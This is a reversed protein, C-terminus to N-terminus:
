AMEVSINLTVPDILTYTQVNDRDYVITKYNMLTVYLNSPEHDVTMGTRHITNIICYKADDANGTLFDLTFSKNFLASHILESRDIITLTDEHEHEYLSEEIIHLTFNIDFKQINHTMTQAPLDTFEIHVSPVVFLEEGNDTQELRKRSYWYVPLNTETEIQKKLALFITKLM